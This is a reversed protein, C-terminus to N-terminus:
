RLAPLVQLKVNAAVKTAAALAVSRFQQLGAKQVSQVSRGRDIGVAACAGGDDMPSGPTYGLDADIAQLWDFQIADICVGAVAAYSLADIDSQLRTVKGKLANFQAKTPGTAASASAACLVALVAM